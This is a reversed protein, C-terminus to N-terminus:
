QTAPLDDDASWAASLRPASGGCAGVGWPPVLERRMPAARRPPFTTASSRQSMGKPQNVSTTSLDRAISAHPHEAVLTPSNSFPTAPGCLKLAV